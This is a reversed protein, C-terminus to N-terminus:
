TKFPNNFILGKREEIGVYKKIEEGAQRYLGNNIANRIKLNDADALKCPSKKLAAGIDKYSMRKSSGDGGYLINLICYHISDYTDFPIKMDNIYFDDGRKELIRSESISGQKIADLYTKLKKSDFEIEFVEDDELGDGDTYIPQDGTREFTLHSEGHRQVVLGWGHRYSTVVGKRKLRELAVEVELKTLSRVNFEKVRIALPFVEKSEHEITKAVVIENDEIGM